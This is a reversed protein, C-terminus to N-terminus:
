RCPEPGKLYIYVVYFVAKTHCVSPWSQPYQHGPAKVVPCWYDCCRNWVRVYANGTTLPNILQYQLVWMVTVDYHAHHRRLDGAKRNNIWGNIRACILSFMLAGRWQGKHSSNVPSRHIVRVFSWYRPIHKCKIVDDHDLSTDVCQSRFFNTRLKNSAM